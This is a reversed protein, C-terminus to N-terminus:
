RIRLRVRLNNLVADRSLANMAALEVMQACWCESCDRRTPLETVREGAYGRLPVLDKPNRYCNSINGAPDMRFSLIGAPCGAVPTPAPWHELHKLTEISNLIRKEGAEKKAILSRFAMQYEAQPAPIPNASSFDFLKTLIAPQFYTPIDLSRCIDLIEDTVRVNHDSVTVNFIMPVSHEKLVKAAALVKAFSGRGRAQDHIEEPGDLSLTVEDVGVLEEIKAPVLFGNTNVKVIVKRTRARAIIQGVDPRILCEGGTLTLAVMGSDILLDLLRLAEESSLETQDAVSEVGCYVCRANCRYTLSWSVLYPRRVGLKALIFAKALPLKRM